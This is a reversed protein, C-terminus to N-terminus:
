SGVTQHALDLEATNAQRVEGLAASHARVQDLQLEREASFWVGVLNTTRKCEIDAAAVAIEHPTVPGTFRNDSAAALPDAYDHGRARMCESWSALVARVSPTRQSRTFSEKALRQPLDPDAGAPSNQRQRAETLAVCGDPGTLASLQEPTPSPTPTPPQTAPDREGLGYGDRAALDADTIGYRRENWSRLGVEHRAPLPPFDFGSKRMCERLWLIRARGMTDLDEQSPLYDDLPLHLGVSDLLVPAPEDAPTSACGAVTLVAVALVAVAAVARRVLM